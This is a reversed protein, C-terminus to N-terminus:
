ETEVERVEGEVVDDDDQPQNFKEMAEVYSTPVTIVIQGDEHDGLESLFNEAEKRDNRINEPREIGSLDFVKFIFDRKATWPVDPDTIGDKLATFAMPLLEVIHAHTAQVRPDTGLQMFRENWRDQFEETRTLNKLQAVTIDLEEAMESYTLSDESLDLMMFVLSDIMASTRLEQKENQNLQLRRRGDKTMRKALPGKPEPLEKLPM